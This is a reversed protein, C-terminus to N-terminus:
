RLLPGSKGTFGSWNDIAKLFYITHKRFSPM